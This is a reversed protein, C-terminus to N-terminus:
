SYSMQKSCRSIIWEVANRIRIYKTDLVMTSLNLTIFFTSGFHLYKMCKKIMCGKVQYEPYGLKMYNSLFSCSAVFTWWMSCRTPHKLPQKMFKRKSKLRKVMIGAFLSLVRVTHAQFEVYKKYEELLREWNNYLLPKSDKLFESIRPNEAFITQLKQFNSYYYSWNISTKRISQLNKRDFHTTKCFLCRCRGREHLLIRYCDRCVLARCCCLFTVKKEGAAKKSEFVQSGPNCCFACPPTVFTCM